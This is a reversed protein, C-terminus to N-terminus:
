PTVLDRDDYIGRGAAQGPHDISIGGPFCLFAPWKFM